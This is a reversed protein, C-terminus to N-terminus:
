LGMLRKHGDHKNAKENKCGEVGCVSGYIGCFGFMGRHGLGMGGNAGLHFNLCIDVSTVSQM